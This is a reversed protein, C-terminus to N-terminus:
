PHCLVLPLYVHRQPGADPTEAQGPTTAVLPQAPLPKSAVSALGGVTRAATMGQEGGGGGDGVTAIDLTYESSAYGHVEILYEGEVATFM